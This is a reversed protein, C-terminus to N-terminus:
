GGVWGGMGRRVVPTEPPEVLGLGLGLGSDDM